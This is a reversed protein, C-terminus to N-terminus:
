RSESIVETQNQHVQYEGADFMVLWRALNVHELVVGVCNSDKECFWCGCPVVYDCKKVQVLDGVKM